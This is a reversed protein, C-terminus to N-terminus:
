GGGFPKMEVRVSDGEVSYAKYYIWGDEKMVDTFPYDRDLEVWFEEDEDVRHDAIISEARAIADEPNRYLEIKDDTHRDDWVLVAVLENTM